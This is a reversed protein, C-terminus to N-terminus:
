QYRDDEDGDDFVIYDDDADFVINGCHPCTLQIGEESFLAENYYADQECVPCELEIYDNDEDSDSDIEEAGDGNDGLYVDEELTMVDSDLEEVYQELEMQNAAVEEVDLALERLVDVIEAIVRGERGSDRMDYRETMGVLHSVRRRLDAM